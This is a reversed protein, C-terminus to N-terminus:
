EHRVNRSPCRIPEPIGPADVTNEWASGERLPGDVDLSPERSGARFESKPPTRTQGLRSFFAGLM